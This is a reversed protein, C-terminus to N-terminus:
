MASAQCSRGGSELIAEVAGAFQEGIREELAAVAQAEQRIVRRARELAEAVSLGAVSAISDVATM